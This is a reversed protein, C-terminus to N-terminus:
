LTTVSFSRPWCGLTIGLDLARLVVQRSAGEDIRHGINNCGLGALSVVLDSSGVKRNDVVPLDEL